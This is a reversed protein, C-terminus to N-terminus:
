PEVTVNEPLPALAPLAPDPSARRDWVRLQLKPRLTAAETESLLSQQRLRQALQAFLQQQAAIFAAVDSSYTDPGQWTISHSVHARLPPEEPSANLLATLFHQRVLDQDANCAGGSQDGSLYGARVQRRYYAPDTGGALLTDGPVARDGCGGFEYVGLPPWGAKPQPKLGFGCFASGGMGGGANPDFVMVQAHVTLSALVVAAFGEARRQVLINGAALWAARWHQESQFLALLAPTTDEQSRSLLILSQVPFEPYLRQADAAPVEAGFQILADLVGLLADYQDSDAVMAAGEAQPLGAEIALLDPIAETHRDRLILYAGWAQLRPDPNHLWAQALPGTQKDLNGVIIAPDSPAPQALAAIALVACACLRFAARPM